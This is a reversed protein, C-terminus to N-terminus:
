RDDDEEEERQHIIITTKYKNPKEDLLPFLFGTATVNCRKKRRRGGKELCDSMMLDLRYRGGRNEKKKKKKPKTQNKSM